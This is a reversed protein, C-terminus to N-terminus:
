IILKIILSFFNELYCLIKRFKRNHKTSVKKEEVILDDFICVLEVELICNSDMKIDVAVM